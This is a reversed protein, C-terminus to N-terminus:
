IEIVKVNRWKPVTDGGVAPRNIGSAAWLLDSLVQFSLPRPDFERQTHRLALAELLSKDSKTRPPPLQVNPVADSSNACAVNM